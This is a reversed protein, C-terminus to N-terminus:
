TQIVRIITLTFYKEELRVIDKRVKQEWQLRLCRLKEEQATQQHNQWVRWAVYGLIAVQVHWCSLLWWLIWLM